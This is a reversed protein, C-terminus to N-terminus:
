RTLLVPVAVVAVVVLPLVVVATATRATTRHLRRVGVVALVSAYVFGVVLGVVPVWNVLQSIQTFAVIRFTAGAGSHTARVLLVVALHTVAVYVAFFVLDFLFPVVLGTGLPEDAGTGLWALVTSVAICTLAFVSSPGLGAVAPLGAFFRDPRTALAPLARLPAPDSGTGAAPRRVPVGPDHIV